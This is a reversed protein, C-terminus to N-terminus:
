LPQELVSLRSTQESESDPLEVLEGDSSVESAALTKPASTSVVQEAKKTASSSNARIGEDEIDSDVQLVYDIHNMLM